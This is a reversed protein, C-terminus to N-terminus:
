KMAVTITAKLKEVGDKTLIVNAKFRGPMGVALLPEVNFVEDTISMEGEPIPCLDAGALDPAIKGSASKIFDCVGQPKTRYVEFFAQSRTIMSLAVQITYSNDIEVKQNYKATISFATANIPTITHELTLIEESGPSFEISEIKFEKM